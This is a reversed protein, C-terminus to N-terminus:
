ASKLEARAIAHKELFEVRAALDACDNLLRNVHESLVLVAEAMAKAGDDPVAARPAVAPLMAVPRAARLADSV